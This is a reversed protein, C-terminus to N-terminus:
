LAKARALTPRSQAIPNHDQRESEQRDQWEHRIPDDAARRSRCAPAEHEPHHEILRRLLENCADRDAAEACADRAASLRLREEIDM